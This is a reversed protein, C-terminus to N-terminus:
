ADSASTPHDEKDHKLARNGVFLLKFIRIIRSFHLIIISEKHCVSLPRERNLIRVSNM